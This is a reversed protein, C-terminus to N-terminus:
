MNGQTFTERGKHSMWGKSKHHEDKEQTVNMRGKQSMWGERTHCEDKGQKVNIRGNHSMWGERTNRESKGQSMWGNRTQCIVRGKRTVIVKSTWRETTCTSSAHKCHHEEIWCKSSQSDSVSFVRSDWVAEGASTLASSSCISSCFTLSQSCLTKVSM